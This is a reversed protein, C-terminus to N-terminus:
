EPKKEEAVPVSVTQLLKLFRGVPLPIQVGIGVSGELGRLGDAGVIASGGGVLGTGVLGGVAVSPGSAAKPSMLSGTMVVNFGLSPSASVRTADAAIATTMNGTNVDVRFSSNQVAGRAAGGLVADLAKATQGATSEVVRDM